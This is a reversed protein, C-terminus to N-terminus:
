LRALTMPLGGRPRLTILPEPEVVQGPALRTRFRQAIAALLLQAEMLAFTNGICQRPGGGFPYYAFHPRGAIREPTFREPDFREPDSWYAPHRHTTYPSLIILANAPIHYGDVQDEAIARRNISWAPPYLRLSEDLVQRTYPLRPLDDVTPVRGALVGALEDHLHAEVEPHRALLYWTWSLLNSTTEHGALLLTLVEDHVQQDTMGQGSDADRAALLMALLDAHKDGSRRREDIIQFVVRSLEAKARQYERGRPTPWSLPPFPQYVYETIIRSVTQFADGVARSERTLDVSFLAQGVIRQTLRMMEGAIDLRMHTSVAVDWRRLMPKAAGTIVTGFAALRQRHFAPQMLRRQHLWSEGENTLLGAGLVDRLVGYDFSRKDYNPNNEQLVRKVGSPSNIFYFSWALYPVRVVDGYEAPLSALYSLVDRRMQRSIGLTHAMSPGPVRRPAETSTRTETASTTQTM